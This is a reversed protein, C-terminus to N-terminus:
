TLYSEVANLDETIPHQSILHINCSTTSSHLAMMKLPWTTRKFQKARWFGEL